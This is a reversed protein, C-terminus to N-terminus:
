HRPATEEASYTFAGDTFTDVTVTRGHRIREVTRRARRRTITVPRGTLPSTEHVSYRITKPTVGTIHIVPGYPTQIRDGEHFEITTPENKGPDIALLETLTAAHHSTMGEPNPEDAATVVRRFGLARAKALRDRDGPDATIRGDPGLLGIIPTGAYRDTRGQIAAAVATAISAAVEDPNKPATAPSLNVTIRCAPWTLGASEVATQIAWRLDSRSVDSLGTISFYPLGPTLYAEVGIINGNSIAIATSVDHM